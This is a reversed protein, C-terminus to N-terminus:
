PLPAFFDAYSRLVKGVVFHQVLLLDKEEDLLAYYREPDFELPQSTKEDFQQM